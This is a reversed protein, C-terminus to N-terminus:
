MRELTFKAHNGTGGDTDSTLKIEDGFHEMAGRILGLALASFPRSSSYEMVLTNEDPQYCDFRPLEAQPYLKKVEVHIHNEIGSLFKFTDDVSGFFVPYREVFRPFLHKGFAEVLAPIPLDTRESLKTVLLLMEGHDYEGVATYVGGSPLESEVAEMIEDAVDPSFNDEVMEMFETFVIGLM